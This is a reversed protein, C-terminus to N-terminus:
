SGVVRQGDGDYGFTAAAAGSVQTLRNEADYSLNFTNAGINRRVMNGNRDYCYSNAGTTVVAHAKSLAGDPCSGNQSGWLYLRSGGQEGPQRDYRRLGSLVNLRRVKGGSDAPLV